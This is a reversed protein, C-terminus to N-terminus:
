DGVAWFSWVCCNTPQQPRITKFTNSCKTPNTSLPNVLAQDSPQPYIRMLDFKRNLYKGFDELPFLAKILQWLETM